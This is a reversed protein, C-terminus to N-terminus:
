YIYLSIFKEGIKIQNFSKEQIEEDGKENDFHHKYLNNYECLDSASDPGINKKIFVEVDGNREMLLELHKILKSVKM